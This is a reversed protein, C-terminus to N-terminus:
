LTRMRAAAASYMDGAVRNGEMYCKEALLQYQRKRNRNDRTQVITMVILGGFLLIGYIAQAM